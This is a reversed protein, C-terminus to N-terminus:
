RDPAEEDETVFDVEEVADAYERELKNLVLNANLTELLAEDDAIARSPRVRRWHHM